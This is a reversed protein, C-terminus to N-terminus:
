INKFNFIAVININMIGDNRSNFNLNIYPM